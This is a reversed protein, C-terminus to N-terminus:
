RWYDMGSFIYTQKNFGWIFIGNIRSVRAPLGLDTLPRRSGELRNAEFTYFFRGIFFVIKGKQNVYVADIKKFDEPLGDWMRRTLLPYGAMLGHDSLRWLFQDKFIFLENRFLTIADYSTKCTDPMEPKKQPIQVVPPRTTQPARTPQTAQKSYREPIRRPRQTPRVQDVTNAYGYLLRIGRIDDEFLDNYRNNGRLLVSIMVSDYENSHGLGLAHGIEHVATAFFSSGLENESKIDKGFLWYEDDDFHVDGGIDSGPYFAHALTNGPGTFDFGDGHNLRHFEIIIDAKLSNIEQFTLASDKQWVAFADHLDRRIQGIVSDPKNSNVSFYLLIPFKFSTM